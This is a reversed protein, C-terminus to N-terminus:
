AFGGTCAHINSETCIADPRVDWDQVALADVCQSDFGVGVLWPPAPSARRFSFTRDYWGGGMGLRTGHADFGVLPMAVFTMETAQLASTPEIDPEPIGYRNTALADGPRWPAFRLVDGALVPLCYICGRPLRLQWSHLAIEGDMAWYGAVYGREPAFPLDLLRAALADAAAIREAAPLERRRARLERRLSDRDTNVPVHEQFDVGRDHQM